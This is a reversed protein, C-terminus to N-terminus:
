RIKYGLTGHGGGIGLSERALKKHLKLPHLKERGSEGM